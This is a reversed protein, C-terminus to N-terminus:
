AAGNPEALEDVDSLDFGHDVEIVVCEKVADCAVCREDVPPIDCDEREPETASFRALCATLVSGDRIQDVRCWRETPYPRSWKPEAAEV